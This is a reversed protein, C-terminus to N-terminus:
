GRARSRMCFMVNPMLSFSVTGMGMPLVMVVEVEELVDEDMPYLASASLVVDVFRPHLPGASSAFSDSSLHVVSPQSSGLRHSGGSRTSYAFESPDTEM